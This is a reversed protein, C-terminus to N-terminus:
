LAKVQCTAATPCHNRAQNAICSLKATSDASEVGQAWYSCCRPVPSGTTLSADSPQQGRISHKPGSPGHKQAIVWMLATVHEERVGSKVSSGETEHPSSNHTENWVQWISVPRPPRDRRVGDLLSSTLKVFYMVVTGKKFQSQLVYFLVNGNM